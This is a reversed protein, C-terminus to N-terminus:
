EMLVVSGTEAREAVDTGSVLVATTVAGTKNYTNGLATSRFLLLLSM